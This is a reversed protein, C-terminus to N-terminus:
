KVARCYLDLGCWPALTRLLLNRSVMMSHRRPVGFNERKITIESWSAMLRRLQRASVFDTVPAANGESNIDYAAREATSAVPAERGANEALLARMTAAPFRLWRRYSYGNYVMISAGGGPKLVRRTESIARSLNGTHHYCGIAVVHDFFGDPWPCELISGQRVTGGRGVQRLRHRVMTVPAEAIDLGYYEAGAQALRQSITGYGLGVELVRKGAFAHFSIHRNLYPYFAFYWADYRALSAQSADTVGLARAAASGCPENWFIANKTDSTATVPKNGSALSCLCYSGDILIAALSNATAARSAILRRCILGLSRAGAAIKM